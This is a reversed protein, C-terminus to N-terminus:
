PQERSLRERLVDARPSGGEDYIELARTSHALRQERPALDALAERAPAEYHVAGVARLMLVADELATVAEADRGLHHFATGIAARARAAMRRDKEDLALFREYADTLTALATAHRGASDQACGLFHLGIAIGRPEGALHYLGLAEEYTEVARAADHRDWYRGYFERASARLLMRGSEDAGSFPPKSNEGHVADDGRDLLPRSLLTRLRAEAAPNGDAAAARAGLEGSEAWDSLYRRNLYLATLAEALEWTQRHLGLGAAARVAALLEARHGVLWDLADAKAAFPGTAGGLREVHGGIRMRDGMVALDAHAALTLLHDIVRQVAAARQQASEQQVAQRRAHLRVLDHFSYPCAGETHGVEVLSAGELSDLLRQTRM